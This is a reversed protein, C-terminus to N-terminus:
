VDYRIVHNYHGPVRTRCKDCDARFGMCLMVKGTKSPSGRINAAAGTNRWAQEIASARYGQTNLTGSAELCGAIVTASSIV